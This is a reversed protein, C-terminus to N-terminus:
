KYPGKEANPPLLARRAEYLDERRQEELCEIYDDRVSEHLQDAFSEDLHNLRMLEVVDGFDKYRQAALKLEILTALDLVSVKDVVESVTAPDPYAIPGPDGSGPFQGTILFDVTVNNTRDKFRFPRDAVPAYNKKVFRRRFEAFGDATLLIDVDGTTRQYQHANVAMGGCVAYAIGARALRRTTRRMTQHVPDKQQFFMDIEKLRQQFSFTDRTGNTPSRQRSTSM